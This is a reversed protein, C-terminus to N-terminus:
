SFSLLVLFSLNVKPFIYGFTLGLFISLFVWLTMYKRFFANFRVLRSM